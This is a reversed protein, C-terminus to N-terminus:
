RTCCFKWADPCLLSSSILAIASSASVDPLYWSSIKFHGRDHVLVLVTPRHARTMREAYALLDDMRRAVTAPGYREVLEALRREGTRNAALQADFDGRSQEPSRVNRLILSYLAENMRGLNFLVIVEFAYLGPIM